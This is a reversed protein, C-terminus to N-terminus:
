IRVGKIREKNIKDKCMNNMMDLEERTAKQGDLLALALLAVMMRIVPEEERSIKAITALNQPNKTPNM